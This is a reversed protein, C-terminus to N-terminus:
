YAYSQLIYINLEREKPSPLRIQQTIDDTIYEIKGNSNYYIRTPNDEYQLFGEGLDLSNDKIEKQTPFRSMSNQYDEIFEIKDVRDYYVRNGNREDTFWGCSSVPSVFLLILLVLSIKRNKM